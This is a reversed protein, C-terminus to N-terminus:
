FINDGNIQFQKKIFFVYHKGCKVVMKVTNDKMSEVEITLSGWGHDVLRSSLQVLKDHYGTLNEM